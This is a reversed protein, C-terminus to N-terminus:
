FSFYYPNNAVWAIWIINLVLSIIGVVVGATAASKGVAVGGAAEMQRARSLGLGSLVIGTICALGYIGILLSVISVILGAIALGNKPVAAGYPQAAYNPTYPLPQGYTPVPPVPAQPGAPRFTDSWEAGNWWRERSPDDPAPYWNAPPLSM